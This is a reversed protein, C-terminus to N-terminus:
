ADGFSQNILAMQNLTAVWLKHASERNRMRGSTLGGSSKAARMLSQEKSLDTWVGAWEHYSYCVTHLGTVKFTKLLAGYKVEFVTKFSKCVTGERSSRLLAADFSSSIFAYQLRAVERSKHLGKSTNDHKSLYGMSSSNSIKSIEIFNLAHFIGNIELFLAGITRFGDNEHWLTVMTTM